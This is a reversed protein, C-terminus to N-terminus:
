KTRTIVVDNGTEDNVTLSQNVTLTMMAINLGTEDAHIAQMINIRRLFTMCDSLTGKHGQSTTKIEFVM